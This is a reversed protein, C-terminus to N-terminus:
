SHNEFYDLLPCVDHTVIGMKFSSFLSLAHEEWYDGGSSVHLSVPKRRENCDIYPLCYEFDTATILTIEFLTM